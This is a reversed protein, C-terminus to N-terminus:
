ANLSAPALAVARELERVAAESDTPTLAAGLNARAEAYDPALRVAERLSAIGAADEGSQILVLGLTNHFDASDPQLRVAERLEAVVVSTEAGKRGLMRGLLHHAEARTRTDLETVARKLGAIAGDWDP